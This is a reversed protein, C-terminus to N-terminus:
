LGKSYIRYTKYPTAKMTILPKNMEKNDELFILVKAQTGLEQLLMNTNLMALLFLLLITVAVSIMVIAIAHLRLHQLLTLQTERAFYVLRGADM